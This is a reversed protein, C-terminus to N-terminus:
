SKGFKSPFLSEDQLMKQCTSMVLDIYQPASLKSKKGKAEDQWQYQRCLYTVEVSSKTM